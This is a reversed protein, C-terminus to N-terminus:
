GLISLKPTDTGYVSMRDYLLRAFWSMDSVFCVRRIHVSLTPIDTNYRHQAHVYRVYLVVVIYAYMYSM